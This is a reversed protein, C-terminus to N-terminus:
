NNPTFWSTPHKCTVGFIEFLHFGLHILLSQLLDRQIPLVSLQDVAGFLPQDKTGLRALLGQELVCTGGCASAHAFPVGRPTIGTGSVDKEVAM